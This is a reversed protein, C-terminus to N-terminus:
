AVNSTREVVPEKLEVGNHSMILEHKSNVRVYKVTTGFYKNMKKWFKVVVTYYDKHKPKISPCVHKWFDVNTRLVMCHLCEIAGYENQNLGDIIFQMAGPKDRFVDELDAFTNHMLCMTNVDTMGLEVLVKAFNEANLKM